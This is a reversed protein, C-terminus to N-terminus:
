KGIRGGESGGMRGERVEQNGRADGEVVGQGVGGIDEEDGRGMKKGEREYEEDGEVALTISIM